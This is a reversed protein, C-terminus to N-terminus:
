KNKKLNRRATCRKGGKANEVIPKRCKGSSSTQQKLKYSLFVGIEAAM